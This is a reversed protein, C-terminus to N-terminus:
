LKNLTMCNTLSQALSSSLEDKFSFNMYKVGHSRSLLLWVMAM